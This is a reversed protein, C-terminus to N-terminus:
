DVHSVGWVIGTMANKSAIMDSQRHKSESSQVQRQMGFIANFTMSRCKTALASSAKPEPVVRCTRIFHM